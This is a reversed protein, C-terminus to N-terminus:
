KDNKCKDTILPAVVIKTINVTNELTTMKNFQIRDNIKGKRM